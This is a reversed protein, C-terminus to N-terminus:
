FCIKRSHLFTLKLQNTNVLNTIIQSPTIYTGPLFIQLGIKGSFPSKIATKFNASSDIPNAKLSKYEALLKM